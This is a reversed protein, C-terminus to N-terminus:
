ELLARMKQLGRQIKSRVTNDNLNLIEGIEHSKYGGFVKLGIIEQEEPSLAAFAARVAAAEEMDGEARLDEPLETTKQLYEKRKRRCKNSLITFIWSRFANPDRLKDISAYADMVTEGTVDEADEPNELMYLAYRYLDKYVSEYYRVFVEPNKLNEM